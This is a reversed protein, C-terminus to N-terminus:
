PLHFLCLKPPYEEMDKVRDYRLETQFSESVDYDLPGISELPFSWFGVALQPVKKLEQVTGMFGKNMSDSMCSMQQVDHDNTPFEEEIWVEAGRVDELSAHIGACYLMFSYNINRDQTSHDHVNSRLLKLLFNWAEFGRRPDVSGLYVHQLQYQIPRPDTGLIDYCTAHGAVPIPRHLKAVPTAENWLHEYIQHPATVQVFVVNEFRSIVKWLHNRRYRLKDTMKKADNICVDAPIGVNVLGIREPDYKWVDHAFDMVGGLPNFAANISVIDLEPCLYLTGKVGREYKGYATGPIQVRYFREAERRSESTTQFLPSMTSGDFYPTCGTQGRLEVNILRHYAMAHHWIMRRLEPPLKLFQPFSAFPSKPNLVKLNQGVTQKASPKAVM